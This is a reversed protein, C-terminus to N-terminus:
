GGDGTKVPTKKKWFGRASWGGLAAVGLAACVPSGAAFGNVLLGATLVAVIVDVWRRAGLRWQAVVLALWAVLGLALSITAFKVSAPGNGERMLLIALLWFLLQNFFVFGVAMAAILTPNAPFKGNADIPVRSAVACGSCCFYERAPQVRLAKFPLGCYHCAVKNM